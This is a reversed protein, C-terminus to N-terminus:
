RFNHYPTQFGQFNNHGQFGQLNNHGQFGQFNNHGQFGQFNNFYPNFGQNTYGYNFPVTNFNTGWNYGQFPQTMHTQPLTQGYNWGTHPTGFQSATNHYPFNGYGFHNQPTTGFGCFYPNQTGWFNPVNWQTGYHSGFDNAFM